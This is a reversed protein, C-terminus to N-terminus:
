VANPVLCKVSGNSAAPLAHTRNATHSEAPLPANTCGTHSEGRVVVVAPELYPIRSEPNPIRSKPNPIQPESDSNPTVAHDAFGSDRVGFGSDRARSTRRNM